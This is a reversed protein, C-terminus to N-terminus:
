VRTDGDVIRDDGATARQDALHDLDAAVVAADQQDAVRAEYTAPSISILRPM